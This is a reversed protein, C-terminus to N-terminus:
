ATLCRTGKAVVVLTGSAEFSHGDVICCCNETDQAKISAREELLVEVKTLSNERNRFTVSIDFHANPIRTERLRHGDRGLLVVSKSPMGNLSLVLCFCTSTSASRVGDNIGEAYM